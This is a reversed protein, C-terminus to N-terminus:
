WMAVHIVSHVQDRPDSCRVCQGTHIRPDVTRERVPSLGYSADACTRLRSHSTQLSVCLDYCQVSASLLIHREILSSMNFIAAGYAVDM